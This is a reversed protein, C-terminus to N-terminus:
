KSKRKKEATTAPVEVKELEPKCVKAHSYYDEYEMLAGCIECRVLFCMEFSNHM